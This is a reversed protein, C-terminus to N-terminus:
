KYPCAFSKLVVLRALGSDRALRPAVFHLRYHNQCLLEMKTAFTMQRSAETVAFQTPLDHSSCYASPRLTEFAIFRESHYAQFRESRNAQSRYAQSRESRCAVWHDM